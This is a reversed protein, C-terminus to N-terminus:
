IFIFDIGKNGSDNKREMRMEGVVLNQTALDGVVTIDNSFKTHNGIVELTSNSTKLTHTGNLELFSPNNPNVKLITSQVNGSTKTISFTKNKIIVDSTNIQLNNNTDGFLATPKFYVKEEGIHIVENGSNDNMQLYGKDNDELVIDGIELRGTFTGGFHGKTAHISGDQLVKFPANERNEYDTGAWFRVHQSLDDHSSPTWAKEKDGDVVMFNTIKVVGGTVYDSRLEFVFATGTGMTCTCSFHGKGNLVFYHQEGFGNWKWETDVLRKMQLYIQKTGNSNGTIGLCEYDFSITVKKGSVSPHMKYPETCHNQNGNFSTRVYEKSTKLAYNEYGKRDGFNTIGANPLIVNGRVTANNLTANGEKNLSWGTNDRENYDYSSLDGSMKISGNQNINLTVNEGDKVALNRVDIKDATISGTKIKGGQIVTKGYEAGFVESLDSDLSKFTVQGDLDIHEGGIKVGSEDLAIASKVGDVDVKLEISDSLQKIQSTSSSVSSIAVNCAMDDAVDSIKPNMYVVQGGTGQYHLIELTNWGRKFTLSIDVNSASYPQRYVEQGNIFIATDDDSRYSFEKTVDEEFYVNTMYHGIYNTDNFPILSTNDDCTLINKPTLGNIEKFSLQTGTTMRESSYKSAIWQNTGRNSKDVDENAPTWDTCLNGKELKMNSVTFNLVSNDIRFRIACATLHKEVLKFSMTAKGSTNSVSFTAVPSKITGLYNSGSDSLEIRFDGYVMSLSNLQSIKWNFSISIEEGVVLGLDRFTKKQNTFYPDFVVYGSATNVEKTKATATGILLNRGGVALNNLKTTTESVTSSFGDVKQELKSHADKLTTTAGDKTITTNSILTEIRGQEIEISTELTEFKETVDESAPTWASAVNGEELQFNALEITQISNGGHFYIVQSDITPLTALTKLPIVVKTWTNAPVTSSTAQNTFPNTGNGKLISASFTRSVSTKADFSLVYETSPKLKNLQENGIQYQMYFWSTSAKTIDFKIAETIGDSYTSKTKTATGDYSSINCLGSSYPTATNLLLNRGGIKINDVKTDVDSIMGKALDSIKKLLIAKKDYYDKFYNRMTTGNVDSTTSLNAVLPNAYNYLTNYSNTYNTKETTIGYVTAQSEITPKESIIIDLDKKITYKESPTLKSDSTINALTSDVAVVKKDTETLASEVGEVLANIDENAPQWDTVKNGIELMMNSIKITTTTSLNDCRIGIANFSNSTNGDLTATWTHRGSNSNAVNITGFGHYYSGGTTQVYFTGIPSDGVVEYDYSLTVTKGHLGHNFGGVFNYFTATQNTKNQGVISKPTATKLLYNRGGIQINDIKTNVQKFSIDLTQNETDLMVKSANLTETGDTNIKTILSDIDVKKGNIQGDAIMNNKIFGNSVAKEKIGTHDILVGKGTEDLVSFNFEGQSDQGIQVRVKGNKDKFQQTADAIIINGNASEIIVKSTDIKGAKIKSANINDIMADKIFGNAIVMKDSTLAGTQIQTSGIANAQIHGAGITNGQIHNGTITQGKIKDGTITEGKIQDATITGSKIHGAEVIQSQLHETKISKSEIKDANVSGAQLHNTNIQSAGIKDATISGSQIHNSNIIDANLHGTDISDSQIHNGTITEGKIHTGEITEGKIHTGEITEGKIHTGEITEGKIHTGEIVEGKIHTGEIIEAKLHKTDIAESQIHKGVISDGQIHTGVIANAEIKDTTISNAQLKDANISNAQLKDTTISNAQLKDANISNAKLHDTEISDSKIHGAEIQDAKIHTSEILNGTLHGTQISGAQIKDATVVNADLKETTISNSQLHETKIELAKIKEATVSDAQLHDTKIQNAKIHDAILTDHQVHNGGIANNGVKDSTVAGNKIQDTGIPFKEDIISALKRMEDTINSKVEKFNSLTCSGKEVDTFSITLNKVRASLHLAPEFDNDVVYVTDGIGLDDEYGVSLEYTIKPNKRKKLEERTKNLLETPSDTDYNFTGVIHNGNKNWRKYAEEDGIWDQDKPKDSASVSSFTINEKGIGILATALESTDVTRKISEINKDYSFRFGNFTGRERFVDVYKAVVKGKDIKVRFALEGGFTNVVHNQLTSYVTGYSDLEITYVDVINPDISGVQWDTDMLCTTVFQKLTTSAISRPKMVENILEIGAMECYATVIFEENHEDTTETIRFLKFDGKFKFAVYNGVVINKTQPSNAFTQFSFTEAGTELDLTYQDEFFPTAMINHAESTLTGVVKEDQNLIYIQM